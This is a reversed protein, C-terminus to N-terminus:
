GDGIPSDTQRHCVAGEMPVCVVGLRQMSVMSEHEPGRALWEVMQEDVVTDSRRVAVM